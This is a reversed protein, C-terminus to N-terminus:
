AALTACSLDAVQRLQEAPVGLRSLQILGQSVLVIHCSLLAIQHQDLGAFDKRGEVGIRAAVSAEMRETSKRAVTVVEPVRHGLQAISNIMLCGRRDPRGACDAIVARCLARIATRASGPAFEVTECVFRARAACYREFAALFLGRKNGYATYISGNGVGTAHSVDEVSTTDFGKTWFLEIAADLLSSEDFQRPRGMLDGYWDVQSTARVGQNQLCSELISTSM